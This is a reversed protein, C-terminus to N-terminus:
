AISRFREYILGIARVYWTAVLLKTEGLFYSRSTLATRVSACKTSIRLVIIMIKNLHPIYEDQSPFRKGESIQDIM